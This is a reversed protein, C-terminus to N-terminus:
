IWFYILSVDVAAIEPTNEIQDLGEPYGKRKMNKPAFKAKNDPSFIWIDENKINAIEHTGYFFVKYRNNSAIGTVRAPWPPYGKVKAFVLDGPTYKDGKPM